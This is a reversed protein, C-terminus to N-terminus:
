TTWEKVIARLARPIPIPPKGILVRLQDRRTSRGAYFRDILAPALRYFREMIRYREHPFAARFLMTDLLRYFGRKRWLSRAFGQTLRALARASLDPADAIRVALRVADPLSYGTTPHFAGARMGAKAIGTGTSAWYADFDGGIVVPLVGTEIKNSPTARWGKAAVYDAIRAKVTAVDLAPDDSYYTDEVFVSNADFPLLYVFRYGDIQEVTADMVVPRELGHPEQCHFLQGVFKQWGLKLTALDGPGRADIVAGAALERGDELTVSTATLAAVRAAIVTDAPLGARLVADFRESEISNYGQELVRTYAPFAVSYSDWRHCILPDILWRDAALVDGDFFSWVHNGGLTEGAEILRVSVEPRREALARAVLGGALGGGVIILDPRAEEHM